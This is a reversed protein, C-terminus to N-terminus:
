DGLQRGCLGGPLSHKSESQQARKSDEKRVGSYGRALSAIRTAVIGLSQEEDFYEGLGCGHFRTLHVPLEYALSTPVTVTCSDGYGTTVGYIVGDEKLLKELFKWGSEIKNVFKPDTSLASQKNKRALSLIDEITLEGDGFIVTQKSM